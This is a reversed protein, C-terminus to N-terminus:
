NVKFDVFFLSRDQKKIKLVAASSSNFFLCLFFVNFAKLCLTYDWLLEM